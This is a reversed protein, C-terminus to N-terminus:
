FPIDSPNIDETPYEYGKGVKSAPPAAKVPERTDADIAAEETPKVGKQSSVSGSKSGFQVSEAIIETRYKKEGSTKDEWSRTQLRGRVAVEQGKELYKSCMEATAGFVVINHFEVQEKKNGEKDKYSSNTAISLSAVATGTPLSRLEPDRTMRGILIAQNLNMTKQNPRRINKRRYAPPDLRAIGEGMIADGDSRHLSPM